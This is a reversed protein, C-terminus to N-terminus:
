AAKVGNRWATHSEPSGGGGGGTGKMREKEEMERLVEEAKVERRRKDKRSGLRGVKKRGTKEQWVCVCVVKSEGFGGSIRVLRM